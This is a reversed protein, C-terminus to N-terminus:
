DGQSINSGIERSTISSARLARAAIANPTVMSAAMTPDQSCFVQGPANCSGYSVLQGNQQLKYATAVPSYYPDLTNGNADTAACGSFQVKGYGCLTTPNGNIRLAEVVWEACNGKLLQKSNGKVQIPKSYPVAGPMLNKIEITATDSSIQGSISCYIVDGVSVPFDSLKQQSDPYWEYWAYVNRAAGNFECGVGAQLVDGSGFKGDIGVWILCNSAGSPSPTFNPVTWQGSVATIDTAPVVVGSWGLDIKSSAM